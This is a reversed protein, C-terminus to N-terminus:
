KLIYAPISQPFHPLMTAPVYTIKQIAARYQRALRNRNALVGRIEAQRLSYDIQLIRPLKSADVDGQQAKFANLTADQEQVTNWTDIFWEYRKVVTRPNTNEAVVSAASGLWGFATFVLWIPALSIAGILAWKALTMGTINKSGLAEVRDEIENPRM